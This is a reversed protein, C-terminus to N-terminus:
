RSEIENLIEEIDYIDYHEGQLEYLRCDEVLSDLNEQTGIRFATPDLEKMVDSPSFSCGGIRVEPYCEDLIEEFLEEGDVATCHQKVLHEIVWETGYEVGVGKLHRMFDDSFCQPCQDGEVIKYCAYCFNDTVKWAATELRAHITMLETM